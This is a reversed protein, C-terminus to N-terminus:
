SRSNLCRNYTEEVADGIRTIDFVSVTKRGWSGLERCRGQDGLLKALEGGAGEFIDELRPSCDGFNSKRAETFNGPTLIGLYETEGLAAVPKGSAMAELIVRGSGIVLQAQRMAFAVDKEYGLFSISGKGFRGRVKQAVNELAQRDEMKGVLRFEVGPLHALLEELPGAMFRLIAQLKPGSFRGVYLLIPKGDVPYPAPSYKELDIGNPILRIRRPSVKLDRTLQDRINDCIAIAMVGFGPFLKRSLHRHQIGHVTTILPVGCAKSALSGVWSSARSHAHILSVKERRVLATLKRINKYRDIWGRRHLRVPHYDAQIPRTLTDSAVLFRHGRKTLEGVLSEVYTETGTVELQSLIHLVTM